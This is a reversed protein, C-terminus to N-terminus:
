TRWDGPKDIKSRDNIHYEKDRSPLARDKIFLLSNKALSAYLRYNLPWTTVARILFRLFKSKEKKRLYNYGIHLYASSLLEQRFTFPLTKNGRIAYDIINMVGLIQTQPDFMANKGHIRVRTLPEDIGLITSKKALKIWLIIDEGVQVSEEFRTQGLEDRRIMVTPTAIPCNRLINPYVRGSFKGSRIEDIYRGEANM